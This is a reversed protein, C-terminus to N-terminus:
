DTSRSQIAATDIKWGVILGEGGCPHRNAGSFRSAAYPATTLGLRRLSADAIEVLADLRYELHEPDVSRLVSRLNSPIDEDLALTACAAEARQIAAAGYDFGYMIVASHNALGSTSLRHADHILSRDKLYPSLLKQLGYDNNKGNDGVLAIYKFELAWEFDEPNGGPRCIMLDCTNRTSNPYEYELHSATFHPLETPYAHAWWHAVEHVFQPENLSKAGQLYARGTRRSARQVTTLQDIQPVAEAIRNVVHSLDM